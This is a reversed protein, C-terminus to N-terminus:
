SEFGLTKSPLEEFRERYDAAFQGMHWFGWDNAIEAVKTTRPDAARLQRRASSFRFGNLFEKPGMGYREVFAYQLTRESVDAARCIDAVKINDRAYQTIFAEARTLAALRKPGFASPCKRKGSAIANM